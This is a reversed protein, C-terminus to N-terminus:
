RPNSARELSFARPSRSHGPKNVTEL